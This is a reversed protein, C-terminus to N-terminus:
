VTATNNPLGRVGKAIGFPGSRFLFLAHNTMLVWAYCSAQTEPILQSLRDVFKEQDIKDRFIDRREIVRIILHHLIGPADIIALRLISRKFLVFL